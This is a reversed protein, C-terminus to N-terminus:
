VKENGWIVAVIGWGDMRHNYGWASLLMASRKQIIYQLLEIKSFKREGDWENSRHYIIISRLAVVVRKM